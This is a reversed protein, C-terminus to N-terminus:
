IHTSLALTITSKTWSFPASFPLGSNLSLAATEEPTKTYHQAWYIENLSDCDTVIYRYTGYKYSNM